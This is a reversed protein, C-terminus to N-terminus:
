IYIKIKDKSKKYNKYDEKKEKLEKSVRRATQMQERAKLNEREQKEGYIKKFEKSGAQAFDEKHATIYKSNDVLQGRKDRKHIIKKGTTTNVEVLVENNDILTKFEPRM